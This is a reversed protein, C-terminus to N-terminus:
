VHVTCFRKRRNHARWLEISWICKLRPMWLEFCMRRLDFWGMVSNRDTHKLWKMSGYFVKVYCAEMGSMANSPIKVYEVRRSWRWTSMMTSFPLQVNKKNGYRHVISTSHFIVLDSKIKHQMFNNSENWLRERERERREGDMTAFAFCPLCTLVTSTYFHFELTRRKEVRSKRTESTFNVNCKVTSNVFKIVKIRRAIILKELM